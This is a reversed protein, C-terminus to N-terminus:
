PFSYRRIPCATCYGAIAPLCGLRIIRDEPKPEDSVTPWVGKGKGIVGYGM